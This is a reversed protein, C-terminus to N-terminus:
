SIVEPFLEAIKEKNKMYRKAILELGLETNIGNVGKFLRESEKITRSIIPHSYDQQKNLDFEQILEDIKDVLGAIQSDVEELDTAEVTHRIFKDCQYLPFVHIGGMPDAVNGHPTRIDTRYGIVPKGMAIHAQTIEVTVGTDIPEDLNALVVDSERVFLGIDLLYITRFTADGVEESPLVKSFKEYLKPFVFGDRQPLIVKYGKEELKETLTVNRLTDGMNFLGAAFYVCTDERKM